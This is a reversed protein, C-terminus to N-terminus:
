KEKLIPNSSNREKEYERAIKLKNLLNVKYNKNFYCSYILDFLYLVSQYVSYNGLNSVLKERTSLHLSYSCLESLSNDGMSTFCIMPIGLEKGKEAVRILKEMEGSYSIILFCETAKAYSMQFYAIDMQHIIDVRKGLKMMKEKFPYALYLHSGNSVIHIVEAHEIVKMVQYLNEADLLELTDQITEMYLEAIKNGIRIPSDKRAFPYNPDLHRFHAVEYELEKLYATKFHNYGDYGIKKCFRIVSAPSTFTEGALKRSSINKIKDKKELIYAALAKEVDSFDDQHLLKEEIM